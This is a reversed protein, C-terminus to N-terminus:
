NMQLNGFQDYNPLQTEDFQPPIEMLVEPISEEVSALASEVNTELPKEYASTDLDKVDLIQEVNQNSGLTVKTYPSPDVLFEANPRTKKYEEFIQKGIADIPQGSTILDNLTSNLKTISQHSETSAPEAKLKAVDAKLTDLLEQGKFPKDNIRSLDRSTDQFMADRMLELQEAYQTYEISKFTLTALGDEESVGSNIASFGNPFREKPAQYVTEPVGTHTKLLGSVKESYAPM